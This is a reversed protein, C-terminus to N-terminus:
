FFKEDVLNEKLSLVEIKVKFFNSGKDGSDDWMFDVDSVLDEMIIGFVMENDSEEKEKVDYYSFNDEMFFVLVELLGGDDVFNNVNEVDEVDLLFLFKDYIWIM